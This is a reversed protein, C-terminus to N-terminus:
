TAGGPKIRQLLFGPSSSTPKNLLNDYFARAKQLEALTRYTVSHGAQSLTLPKGAWALIAADIADIIAQYTSTSV